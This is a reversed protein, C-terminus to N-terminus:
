QVLFDEVADYFQIESLENVNFLEVLAEICGKDPSIDPIDKKSGNSTLRIGYGTYSNGECICISQIIEYRCISKSM